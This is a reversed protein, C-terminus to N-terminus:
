AVETWQAILKKRRRRALLWYMVLLMTYYVVILGPSTLNVPRAAGPLRSFFWALWSLCSTFFWTLWGLVVALPFYIFAALAAAMSLLIIAPLLPTALLTTLPTVVSVQGFYSVLLPWVVITAALTLALSELILGALPGAVPIRSTVREEAPKVFDKLHPSLYIIGFMAILSLQFSVDWLVLPNALAMILAALWLAPGANKQRGALEALLFVSAMIAARVVSASLGTLLVYGWVTGATLWVYVYHRKGLLRTFLGVLLGAIITLNMGSIALIHTLGSRKFDNNIDAPINGRLGLLIGQALSAQPEPLVRALNQELRHRVTFIWGLVPSGRDSATLTVEPYFMVTYIDQRALYCAYDFDDFSAPQLLRGNLTLEDGYRYAPYREVYVFANGAVALREREDELSNVAVRLRTNKDRAEPDATVTGFLIVNRGNYSRLELTSDTPLTTQYYLAGGVVALLILSTLIVAKQRRRFRLLPLPLLGLLLSAVSPTYFSGMFIGAMWAIGLCTLVL